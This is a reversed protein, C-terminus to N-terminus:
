ITFSMIFLTFLCGSTHCWNSTICMVLFLSYSGSYKFYEWFWSFVCSFPYLMYIHVECFALLMFFHKDESTILSTCNFWVHSENWIWGIPLYLIQCSDTFIHFVPVRTYQKQSNLNACDNSSYNQTIWFLQLDM